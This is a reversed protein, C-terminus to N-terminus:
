SGSLIVVTGAGSAAASQMELLKVRYFLIGSLLYMDHDVLGYDKVDLTTSNNWWSMSAELVMRGSADFMGFRTWWWNMSRLTYRKADLDIVVDSRWWSVSQASGIQKGSSDKILQKAGTWGLGEILWESSGVTIKAAGYTIKKTIEFQGVTQEDRVIDWESKWWSRSRFTIARM